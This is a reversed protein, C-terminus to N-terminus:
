QWSRPRRLKLSLLTGLQNCCYIIQKSLSSPLANLRGNSSIGVISILLLNALLKTETAIMRPGYRTFM